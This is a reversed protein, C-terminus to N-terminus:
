DVLVVVPITVVSGSRQFQGWAKYLGTAPFHVDFGVENSVEGNDLPHAHVYQEGDASLVVLHGMAGLYPELDKLPQNESDLLSFQVTRDTGSGRSDISVNALLGEAPITGPVNPTLEPTPQSDGKISVLAQATTQSGGTPKYDLFIRYTGGQPFAYTATIQGDSTVDPHLHAFEDLGERVVILHALKEHTEEFSRVMEGSATHVMLNLTTEEGAQPEKPSMSVILQAQEAGQHHVHADQHADAQGQEAQEGTRTCGAIFAAGLAILILIRIM